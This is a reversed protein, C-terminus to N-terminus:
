ISVFRSFLDISITVGKFGIPPMALTVQQADRASASLGKMPIDLAM